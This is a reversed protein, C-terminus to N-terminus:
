RSVGSQAEGGGWRRELCPASRRLQQLRLPVDRRVGRDGVPRRAYLDRARDEQHTRRRRRWVRHRRGISPLGYGRLFSVRTYTAIQRDPSRTFHLAVERTRWK